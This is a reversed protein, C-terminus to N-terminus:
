PGAGTGQVLGTVYANELGLDQIAWDGVRYPQHWIGRHHQVSIVTGDTLTDIETTEGEQHRAVSQGPPVYPLQDLFKYEDYLFRWSWKASSHKVQQVQAGQFLLTGAAFGLASAANRTGFHGRIGATGFNSFTGSKTQTVTISLQPVAMKQPTGDLDLFAGTAIDVKIERANGSSPFWPDNPLSAPWEGMVSAQRTMGAQVVQVDGRLRSITTSNIGLLSDDKLSEFVQAYYVVPDESEGGVTGPRSLPSPAVSISDVRWASNNPDDTGIAYNKTNELYAFLTLEGSHGQCVLDIQRVAQGEDSITVKPFGKRINASPM